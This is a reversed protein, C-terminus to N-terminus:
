KGREKKIYKKIMFLATVAEDITKFLFRLRDKYRPCEVYGDEEIELNYIIQSVWKKHIPHTYGNVGSSIYEVLTYKKPIAISFQKKNYRSVKGIVIKLDTNMIEDHEPTYRELGNINLVDVMIEDKIITTVSLPQSASSVVQSTAGLNTDFHKHKLQRM